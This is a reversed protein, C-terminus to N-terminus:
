IKWKRRSDLQFHRVPWDQPGPHKQMETKCAHKSTRQMLEWLERELRLREVLKLSTKRIIQMTDGSPHRIPMDFLMDLVLNRDKLKFRPRRSATRDQCITVRNKYNSDNKIGKKWAAPQIWRFGTSQVWLKEMNWGRRVMLKLLGWDM